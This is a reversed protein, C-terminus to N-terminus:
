ADWFMLTLQASLSMQINVCVEKVVTHQSSSLELHYKVSLGM